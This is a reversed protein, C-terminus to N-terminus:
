WTGDFYAYANPITDYSNAYPSYLVIGGIHNVTYYNLADNSVTATAHAYDGTATLSTVTNVGPIKDVTFYMYSELLSLSGSPLQFLVSGGTSETKPYCGMSYESVDSGTRWDQRFAIISNIQVKSAEVGIGMIDHSRTYPMQQWYTDLKYRMTDDDLNTITVLLVKYDDYSAGNYYTGYVDRPSYPNQEKKAQLEAEMEEKTLLQSTHFQIGNRMTTTTKYYYKTQAVISAEIDKNDTFTQYDMREIQKETFGQNLLNNYQQETMDLGENNTYYVETSAYVTPTVLM